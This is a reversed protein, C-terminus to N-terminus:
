LNFNHGVNFLPSNGDFTKSELIEGSSFDLDEDGFLFGFGMSPKPNYILEQLLTDCM